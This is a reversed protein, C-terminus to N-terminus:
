MPDPLARPLFLSLGPLHVNPAFVFCTFMLSLFLFPPLTSSLAPLSSAVIGRHLASTSLTPAQADFEPSLIRLELSRKSSVVKTELKHTVYIKGQADVRENQYKKRTYSNKPPIGM